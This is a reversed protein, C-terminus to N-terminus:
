RSDTKEARKIIGYKQGAKCYQWKESIMNYYTCIRKSANYFKCDKCTIMLDFSLEFTADGKSNM